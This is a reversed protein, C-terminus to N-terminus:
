GHAGAEIGQAEITQFHDQIMRVLKSPSFPKSLIGILQHEEMLRDHDLEWGKATCLITPPQEGKARLMRLLEEGSCGPMQHDTVIFDIPNATLYEAAVNGDSAVVVHFGARKLTFDLLHRFVPDDEAILIRHTM